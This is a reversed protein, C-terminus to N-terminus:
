GGAAFSLSATLERFEPTRRLPEFTPDAFIWVLSPRSEKVARRLQATARRQDGLLTLLRAQEIPDRNRTAEERLRWELLGELGRSAYSERLSSLAAPTAAQARAEREFSLLAREPENRQTHLLGSLFHAPAHHPDLVNVWELEALAQTFDHAFFHARALEFRVTSNGPTQDIIDQLLARSEDLRGLANLLQLYGLDIAPTSCSSKDRSQLYAREAREWDHDRLFSLTARARLLAAEDTGNAEATRTLRETVSQVEDLDLGLLGAGHRAYLDSLALHLVGYDPARAIAQELHDIAQQVAGTTQRRSLIESRLLLDCVERPPGEDGARSLELAPKSSLAARSEPGSVLVFASLISLLLAAVLIPRKRKALADPSPLAGDLEEPLPASRPAPGIYRYGTKRITEIYRPRRANDGLAKRLEYIVTTMADDSIAQGDWARELLEGRTVVEGSHELLLAFVTTAKHTLRRARGDVFLEGSRPEFALPTPASSLRGM